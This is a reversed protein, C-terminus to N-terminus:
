SNPQPSFVIVEIRPVPLHDRQALYPDNNGLGLTVIKRRSFWGTKQISHHGTLYNGIAESQRQTLAVAYESELTAPAYSAIVVESQKSRQGNLWTALQDLRTRGQATLVAQGPEFLDGEPFWQQSRQYNARLLERYPDRVYSGVVPLNKIAEADRQMAAMTARAQRLLGLLEDYAEPENLIKGLSGRSNGIEVLKQDLRAILDGLEQSPRSALLANDAVYPAKDTGPSIEIVKGGVMGEPVIQAVADARILQKVRGDLRLVLVVQGSPLSPLEVSEVTGAPKGLVRVRTGVEVGHIQAFTTRVCYTDGWIWHRIGVAGVGATALGLSALVAVGLILCQLKSLM